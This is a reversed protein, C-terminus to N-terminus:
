CISNRRCRRLIQNTELSDEFPVFVLYIYLSLSLDFASFQRKWILKKRRRRRRGSKKLVERTVTVWYAENILVDETINQTVNSGSLSVYKSPPQHYATTTTTSSCPVGHFQIHVLPLNFKQM